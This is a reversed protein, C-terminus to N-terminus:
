MYNSSVLVNLSSPIIKIHLDSFFTVPEGDIHAKLEQNNKLVLNKEQMMSFYKSRHISRNMLRYFLGLSSVVPFPKLFAIDLWGDQVNAGPAILANNGFQSSNAFTILFCERKILQKDLILEYDKPQYGSFEKFVLKAYTAFGRTTSGAFLHAIHADFGVGMVGLCFLDNVRVTDINIIKGNNIVQMAREIQMPIKLHRSMGNGSGTPIFALATESGILGSAVENASGDGGVSVVLPYNKQAAERSLEVAHRPAETLSIDLEFLDRDTQQRILDVLGANKSHGSKPNIIFKIKKKM